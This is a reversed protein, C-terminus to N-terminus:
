TRGRKLRGLELRIRALDALTGAMGLVRLKSDAVHVWTQLPLELFAKDPLGPVGPAGLRLRGLLEVDFAWRSLFPRELAARLTPNDRFWKAGCQTDYFPMELITSAFTAFVRGLLHRTFRRQIHTGVLLVRSGLLAQVDPRKEIERLLRVLEGPPTSFDADGYGVLPAGEALAALMGQRVAEGKGQNKDLGLFSIKGGSYRALEKLLSRTGDRSGDDVLLVRIGRAATFGLVRDRDLRAEENFCPVVLVPEGMPLRSHLM